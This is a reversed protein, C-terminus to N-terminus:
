APLRTLDAFAIRTATENIEVGQFGSARAICRISEPHHLRFVSRRSPGGYERLAAMGDQTTVTDFNFSCVGGSRLVRAFELLFWYTEDLDLHEFVGHAVVADVTADRLMPLRPGNLQHVQFSGKGVLYERMWKCVYRSSDVVVLERCRGILHRTLRGSGPGLEVVVADPSLLRLYHDNLGETLLDSAWDADGVDNPDNLQSGQRAWRKFHRDWQPQQQLRLNLPRLPVNAWQIVSTALPM